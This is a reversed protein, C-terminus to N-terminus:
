TALEAPASPERPGDLLAQVEEPSPNDEDDLDALASRRRLVQDVSEQTVLWRSGVCVGHLAGRQIWPNVFM